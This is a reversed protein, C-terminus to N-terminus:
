KRVMRITPSAVVETPSIVMEKRVEERIVEFTKISDEPHSMIRFVVTLVGLVVFLPILLILFLPLAVLFKIWKGWKMWVFMLILGVPYITVLTIVTILTKTDYSLENNNITEIEKVKKVMAYSIM